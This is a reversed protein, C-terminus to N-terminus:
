EAPTFLRGEDDKSRLYLTPAYWYRTSSRFIKRGATVAEVVSGTAALEEYFVKMFEQSEKIPVPFQMGVVAPIKALFLNPALSNFVSDGSITSSHCASLVVVQIGQGAIAERFEEPSVRDSTGDDKEFFLYGCPTVDKLSRECKPCVLLEESRIKECVPCKRGVQGHGDFHLVNAKGKHKELWKKLEELTRIGELNTQTRANDPIVEWEGRPFKATDKQDEPRPRPAVYLVQLHEKSPQPVGEDCIIHRILSVTHGSEGKVLFRGRPGRLLEWPYRPLVTDEPYFGLHLPIPKEDSGRWLTSLIVQTEGSILSQYLTTGIENDLSAHVYGESALELEILDKWVDPTFDSQRLAGFNKDPYSSLAKLVSSLQDPLYPFDVPDEEREAEDWTEGKRVIQLNGNNGSLRLRICQAKTELKSTPISRVMNGIAVMGNRDEEKLLDFKDQHLLHYAFLHQGLNLLERPTASMRALVQDPNLIQLESASIQALSQKKGDSAWIMRRQIIEILDQVTWRIELPQYTDTFPRFRVPLFVKFFFRKFDDSFIKCILQEVVRDDVNKNLDDLDLFIFREQQQQSKRAIRDLEDYLKSASTYTSFPTGHESIKAQLMLRLATRGGGPLALVISHVPQLLREFYVPFQFCEKLAPGDEARPFAFPNRVRGLDPDYVFGLASLWDDLASSRGPVTNSKDMAALVESNFPSFAFSDTLNHREPPKVCEGAAMIIISLLGLFLLCQQIQRISMALKIRMKHPHEKCVVHVVNGPVPVTLLGARAPRRSTNELCSSRPLGQFCLFGTVQSQMVSELCRTEINTRNNKHVQHEEKQTQDNM